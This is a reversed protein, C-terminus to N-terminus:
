RTAATAALTPDGDYDFALGTFGTGAFGNWTYDLLPILAYQDLAIKEAQLAKADQEARTAAATRADTLLRDVDANTWGGYNSTNGAGGGLLSALMSAGSPYDPGWGLLALGNADKATIAKTFDTLKATEYSRVNVEWGLVSRLRRAVANGLATQTQEGRIFLDIKTGSALGAAQAAEKAKETDPADCSPCRGPAGFGKVAAPVIGHAIRYRGGYAAKNLEGRDLAYSVAERAHVNTMVGSRVLPILMRQYPAARSVQRTGAPAAQGLQTSQLATWDYAGPAASRDGGTATLTVRVGDLRARGFGWADNRVLALQTGTSYSGVKFPGNGIPRRNFEINNPAGASTPAPYFAPDALRRDFECDPASLRVTLTDGSAQVGSLATAKGSEVDAYGEIGTMQFVATSDADKNQASRNWGRAFAAADVREGDSFTTGSRVRVTWVRCGQGGPTTISAAARNVVAGSADIEALGTYLQKSALRALTDFAHAPDIADSSAYSPSAAMRLTGGDRVTATTARDDPNGGGSQYLAFLGGGAALALVAAASGAVLVGRPVRGGPPRGAGQPVTQWSPRFPPAGPPPTTPGGPPPLPVAAPPPTSAAPPPPPPFAAAPGAPADPRAINLTGTVAAEAGRGLVDAPAAGRLGGALTLLRVLVQQATPRLAPDKALCDAALSRLPEPTRGLDPPANLIRHTVAPITDNGFAPRGCAAFVMTVGWAFVDAAPGTPAGSIQEPAMYAPTGVAASSLTGTADLARAIGFDIVRPGDPALLVNGPKFDRHVVGAEHIAALATMTGIALRDLDAGRRPGHAALVQALSPGDIYESVLYPRDGEIDSDLLRATCFPEVRRAVAVEAAFRARARQDGSFRAHLLKVAVRAGPEDEGLFVSGQGGEGLLGTLRYPGLTRPDGERLPTPDPM